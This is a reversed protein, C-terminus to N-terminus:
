QDAQDPPHSGQEHCPTTDLRDKFDRGVWAMRHNQSAAVYLESQRKFAGIKM